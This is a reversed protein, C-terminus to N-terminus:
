GRLFAAQGSFVLDPFFLWNALNRRIAARALNPDIRVGKNSEKPEIAVYDGKVLEWAALEAIVMAEVEATIDASYSQLRYALADSTVGLVGGITLLQPETFAM